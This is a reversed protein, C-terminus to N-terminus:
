IASYLGDGHSHFIPNINNKSVDSKKRLTASLVSLPQKASFQYLDQSLIEDYIQKVSLSVGRDELVKKAAETITM